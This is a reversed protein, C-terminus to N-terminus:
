RMQILHKRKGTDISLDVEKRNTMQFLADLPSISSRNSSIPSSDDNEGDSTTTTIDLQHKQQQKYENFLEDNQYTTNLHSMLLRAYFQQLLYDNTQQQFKTADSSSRKTENLIDKILFSNPM